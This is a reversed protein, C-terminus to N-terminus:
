PAVTDLSVSGPSNPGTVAVQADGGAAILDGTNQAGSSDKDLFVNVCYNGQPV